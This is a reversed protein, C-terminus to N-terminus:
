APRRMNAGSQRPREEAPISPLTVVFTAGHEPGDECRVSGDHRVAIQRVLSLGLGWSGAAESRGSPRYFPEFVRSREARPIGVGHDRVAIFVQALTPRGVEIEIPPAGHRRANELLNRMLRRLLRPDGAVVAPVGHAEAGIRAAEEAALALLDVPERREIEAAHDLRSALLIEEVLDDLETLSQVMEDDAERPLAARHLEIAMRLRALPSRLEHSANALLARHAEVLREIRDAAGNFANAVAAVEDRGQAAVRVSLAGAGWAEMGTRVRELRRTLRAVVPFAALGIVAAILAPLWLVGGGGARFPLDVRARVTRGGSLAVDYIRRRGRSAPEDLSIPAGAAALRHGGPGFLAIDADLGKALREVATAISGPPDDGAPIVAELFRVQVSTWPQGTEAWTLRVVILVAITALALSALLTLYVKWFLRRRM